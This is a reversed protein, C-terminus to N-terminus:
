IPKYEAFLKRLIVTGSTTKANVGVTIALLPSVTVVASRTETTTRTTTVWSMLVQTSSIRDITVDILIGWGYGYFNNLGVNAGFITLGFEPSPSASSANDFGVAEIHVQDGDAILTNAPITGSTFQVLNGTTDTSATQALDNILTVTANTGNTGNTGDDGSIVYSFVVEDNNAFPATASGGLNVVTLSIYNPLNSLSVATVKYLAFKLSDTISGIRVFAKITSTATNIASLWATVDSGSLDVTSVNIVTASQVNVNNVLLKTNTPDGSTSTSFKYSDSNGGFVGDDGANGKVGQIGVPVTLDQCDCNCDSM